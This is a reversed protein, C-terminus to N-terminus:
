LDLFKGQRQCEQIFSQLNKSYVDWVLGPGSEFMLDRDVKVQHMAHPNNEKYLIMSMISEYDPAPFIDAQIKYDENEGIWEVGFMDTTLVFGEVVEGAQENLWMDWQAHFEEAEEQDSQFGLLNGDKDVVAENTANQARNKVRTWASHNRNNNTKMMTASMSGMGDNMGHGGGGAKRMNEKTRMNADHNGALARDVWMKAANGGHLEWEPSGPQNADFFAKLRKMQAHSQMQGKALEQAKRRGSGENGGSQTQANSNLAKQAVAKVDMPPAFSKNNNFGFREFLQQRIIARIENMEQIAEQYSTNIDVEKVPTIDVFLEEGDAGFDKVEVGKFVYLKQNNNDRHHWAIDEIKEMANIFSTEDTFKYGSIGLEPESNWAGTIPCEKPESPLHRGKSQLEKYDKWADEKTDFWSGMYGSWNRIADGKPNYTWRLFFM